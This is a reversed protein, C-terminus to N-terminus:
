RGPNDVARVGPSGASQLTPFVLFVQHAHTLAIPPARGPHNVEKRHVKVDQVDIFRAILVALCVLNSESPLSSAM